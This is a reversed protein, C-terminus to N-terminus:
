SQKIAKTIHAKLKPKTWDNHITHMGIADLHAFANRLNVMPQEGPTDRCSLSPHDYLYDFVKSALCRPNKYNRLKYFFSTKLSNIRDKMSM